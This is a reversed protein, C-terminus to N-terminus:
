MHIVCVGEEDDTVEDEEEEEEPAGVGLTLSHESISLAATSNDVFGEDMEDGLDDDTPISDESPVFQRGAQKYLYEVGFLEEENHQTPAHHYPLLRRGLFSESLQNVQHM